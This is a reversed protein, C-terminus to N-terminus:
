AQEKCIAETLADQEAVFAAADSILAFRYSTSGPFLDVCWGLGDYDALYKDYYTVAHPVNVSGTASGKFRGSWAGVCAAEAGISLLADREEHRLGSFWPLAELKDLMADSVAVKYAVEIAEKRIM